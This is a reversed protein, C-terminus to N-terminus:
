AAVERANAAAELHALLDAHAKGASARPPGCVGCTCAFYHWARWTGGTATRDANHVVPYHGLYSM